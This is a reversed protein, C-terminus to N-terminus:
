NRFDKSFSIIKLAGPYDLSKGAPFSSIRNRINCSAILLIRFCASAVVMICAPINSIGPRRKM